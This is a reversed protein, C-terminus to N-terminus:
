LKKHKFMSSTNIIILLMLDIKMPVDFKEDQFLKHLSVRIPYKENLM